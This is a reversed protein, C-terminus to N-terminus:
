NVHRIARGLVPPRSKTVQQSLRVAAKSSSSAMLYGLTPVGVVILMNDNFAGLFTETYSRFITILAITALFIIAGSAGRRTALRIFRATGWGLGGFIIAAGVGGFDVLVERFTNHFNFGIGSSLNAWRLLGITESGGGLWIARFGHGLVPKDGILVDAHRWLYDRGTLGTDKGLVDVLFWTGLNSVDHRIFWLVLVTVAVVLAMVLKGMSSMRSTIVLLPAVTLFIVLSTVAGTAFTQFLIFAALGGSVIATLRLPRPQEPMMGMTLSATLVLLCLNGMANKSGLFGVLVSGGQSQGKTGDVICMMLIIASGVFLGRLYRNPTSTGAAVMIALITITVQLGYRLSVGPQDSWLASLPFLLAVVLLPWARLAERAAVPQLYILAGAGTMILLPGIPGLGGMFAGCVMAVLALESLVSAPAARM